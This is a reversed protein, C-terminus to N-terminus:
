HRQSQLNDKIAKQFIQKGLEEMAKKELKQVTREDIEHNSNSIQKALSVGGREMPSNMYDAFNYGAKAFSNSTNMIPSSSDTITRLQSQGASSPSAATSTGSSIQSSQSAVPSGSSRSYMGGMSSYGGGGLVFRNVVSNAMQELASNIPQRLAICQLSGIMSGPVSLILRLSTKINSMVIGFAYTFGLVCYTSLLTICLTLIVLSTIGKGVVNVSYHYERILTSSSKESSYVKISTDDFCSNLYNYTAMPSLKLNSDIKFEGTSRLEACEVNTSAAGFPNRVM